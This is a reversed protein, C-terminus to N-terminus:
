LRSHIKTQNIKNLTLFVSATSCFIHLTVTKNTSRCMDLVYTAVLIVVQRTCLYQIYTSPYKDLVDISPYKDLVYTSSYM